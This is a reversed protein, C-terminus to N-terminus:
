LRLDLIGALPELGVAALRYLGSRLAGRMAGHFRAGLALTPVTGVLEGIPGPALALLGVWPCPVREAGDGSLSCVRHSHCAVAVRPVPRDGIASCQDADTDGFTSGEFDEPAQRVALMSGQNRGRSRPAKQTGPAQHRTSAGGRSM